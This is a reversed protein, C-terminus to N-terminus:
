FKKKRTDELIENAIRNVNSSITLSSDVITVNNETNTELEAITDNIQTINKSQMKISEAMDSISQVLININTEIEALSKQTREALKRVEDAVVAFGRGHEGARAAEIAANLALLNTQDAIDRIIDIINKIDQGQAIVDNTKLAVNQMSDTIEEVSVSTQKLNQSQYKSSETLKDVAEKLKQSEESLNNAFNSSTILMKKIEQGLINTTIEVNGQANKIDSTFNLSKYDDFIRQIENMNAGIKQQLVDLMKNLVNKLEILQPNAPQKTIRATLNGSEVEQAVLVSESVANKDQQLIKQTKTINDNIAQGMRGLEDEAQITLLKIDTNNEHNLLKFFSLLVDYINNIRTSVKVKIFFYISIVIIFIIIISSFTILLQINRVPQYVADESSYIGVAWNLDIKDYIRFPQLALISTKSNAMGKYILIEPTNSKQAEAIQQVSSDHNVDKLLKNQLKENYSLAIRTGSTLLFSHEDKLSKESPDFLVNKLINLDIFMGIAGIIKGNQNKIPGAMNVAYITKGDALELYFPPSYALQGTKIAELYARNKLIFPDTKTISVKNGSKAMELLFTNNNNVIFNPHSTNFYNSDNLIIWGLAIYHNNSVMNGIINQIHKINQIDEINNSSIINRATELSSFAENTAILIKNASIKAKASLATDSQEKVVSRVDSSIIFGLIFIGLAVCLSVITIIKAGISLKSFTM